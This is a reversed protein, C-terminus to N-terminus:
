KIEFTIGEPLKSYDVNNLFSIFDEQSVKEM